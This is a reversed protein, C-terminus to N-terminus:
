PSKEKRVTEAKEVYARLWAVVSPWGQAHNERAATAAGFGTHRMRLLTGRGRPEVDFEVTTEPMSVWSPNWTYVLRRPPDVELFVGHVRSPQGAANRCVADWSGGVRVDARWEEVWYADRAGWWAKLEAPDSLARFVRRPPAAIEVEGVIGDGEVRVAAEGEAGHAM